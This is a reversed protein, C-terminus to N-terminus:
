NISSSIKILKDVRMNLIEKFRKLNIKNEEYNPEDFYYSYYSNSAKYHYNILKLNMNSIEEKISNIVEYIHQICIQIINHKDKEYLKIDNVLAEIIQMDTKIDLEEIINSIKDNKKDKINTYIESVLTSILGRALISSGSLILTEM